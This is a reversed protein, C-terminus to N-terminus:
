SVRGPLPPPKGFRRNAALALGAVVKDGTVVWVRDDPVVLALGFRVRRSGSVELLSVVASRDPSGVVSVDGVGLRQRLAASM